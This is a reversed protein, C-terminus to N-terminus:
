RTRKDVSAASVTLGDIYYAHSGGSGIILRKPKGGDPYKWLGIEKGDYGTSELLTRGQIWFQPPGFQPLRRPSLLLTKGVVTGTSGVVKIRDITATHDDRAGVQVALHRGDWQIWGDGPVSQKLGISQATASGKPLEVLEGKYQRDLGYGFLNGRDDYACSYGMALSTEYITGSGSANAWVVLDGSDINIAAVNGTTPDVSCGWPAANYGDDPLQKEISGSHDFEILERGADEALWVNGNEDSCMGIGAARGIAKVFRGRPYSWVFIYDGNANRDASTFILDGSAGTATQDLQVLGRPADRASAISPAGCGALSMLAAGIALAQGLVWTKM